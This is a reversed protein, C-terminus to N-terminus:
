GFRRLDDPALRVLWEFSIEGGKRVDLEVGAQALARRLEGVGQEMVEPTTPHDDRVHPTAAIMPAFHVASSTWSRESPARRKESSSREHGPILGRVSESRNRARSCSRMM